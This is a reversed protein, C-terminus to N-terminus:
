FTLILKSFLDKRQEILYLIYHIIYIKYMSVANSFLYVFFIIKMGLYFCINCLATWAIEAVSESRHARAPQTTM